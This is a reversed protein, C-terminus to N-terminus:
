TTTEGDNPAAAIAVADSDAAVFLRAGHERLIRHAIRLQAAGVVDQAELWALAGAVGDLADVVRQVEEGVKWTTLQSRVLAAAAELDQDTFGRLRFAGSGTRMTAVADALEQASDLDHLACLERLRPALTAQWANPEPWAELLDDARKVLQRVREKVIGFHDGVAQLTLGGIRRMAWVQSNRDGFALAVRFGQVTTSSTTANM